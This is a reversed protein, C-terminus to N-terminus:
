SKLQSEIEPYYKEDKAATILEQMGTELDTEYKFEKQRAWTVFKQYEAESLAFKTWESPPQNEACYKTAYDFLIGDNLLTVTIAGPYEAEVPIDPDLGAGDYVKRGHKTKFESKLSDAM